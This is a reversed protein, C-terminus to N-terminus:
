RTGPAPISRPRLSSTSTWFSISPGRLRNRDLVDKVASYALEGKFAEDAMLRRLTEENVGCRRAAAAFTKASVLAVIAQERVSDSKTGHGPLEGGARVDAPM